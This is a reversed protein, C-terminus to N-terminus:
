EHRAHDAELEFFRRSRLYVFSGAITLTGLTIFAVIRYMPALQALDVFFIKVVTVAFIGLATYRVIRSRKLIGAILLALAFGSWLISIGGARLGPIFIGLATNLELTLVLWLLGLSGFVFVSRDRAANDTDCGRWGAAFLGLAIVLGFDLLRMFAAPLSYPSEFQWTGMSLEWYALDILLVKGAVLLMLVRFLRNAATTSLLRRAGSHLLGVGLCVWALTLLPQRLPEFLYTFSRHIELQLVVFILAFLILMTTKILQPTALRETSDCADNVTRDAPATRKQLLHGGLGFSLIPVGFVVLRELLQRAYVALPMDSLVPPTVYHQALDLFLIRGLVLTYVLTSLQRLFRSRLKEAIWLLILAEIAWSVTIWASSLLLPMTVSLFFTALAFFSLQLGRDKRERWLMYYIHGTYFAALGLTLCAVWRVGHADRILTYGIVFFASANALMFLVEILTSEKGRLLNHMFTMTSFLVFFAAFFPMVSWFLVQTYADLALVALAYTCILSLINLLYWNRRATTVFVGCGLLLLYSYLGPFNVTDSALMLPTGYGGILGFVAVLLSDCRIALVGASVTVLAMLAFAPALSLFGYFSFAAFFSFYLVALGGGLSGQGLLHYKGGLLKLGVGIMALGALISLSVRARPPLLGAEISYKLFFGVGVVVIVIGLRLLWNSAVAFEVSVGEPRHEEGVAIWNWIRGLLEKAAQEFRSPSREAVPADKADEAENAFNAPEPAAPPYPPPTHPPPTPEGRAPADSSAVADAPDPEDLPKRMVKAPAQEKAPPSFSDDAPTHDTIRRLRRHIAEIRESLRRQRALVVGLMGVAAIPAIVLGLVLLTIIFLENM